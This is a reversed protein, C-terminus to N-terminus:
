EQTFGAWVKAKLAGLREEHHRYLIHKRGTTKIKNQEEELISIKMVWKDNTWHREYSVKCLNRFIKHKILLFRNRGEISSLLGSFTRKRGWLTWFSFSVSKHLLGAQNWDLPEPASSDPGTIKFNTCSIRIKYFLLLFYMLVYTHVCPIRKRDRKKKKQSVINDKFGNRGVERKPRALLTLLFSWMAVEPRSSFKECTLQSTFVWLMVDYM